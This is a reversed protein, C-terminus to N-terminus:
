SSFFITISLQQRFRYLYVLFTTLFLLSSIDASKTGYESAVQYCTIEKPLLWHYIFGNGLLIMQVSPTNLFLIQNETKPMKVVSPRKPHLWLVWGQIYANQWFFTSNRM